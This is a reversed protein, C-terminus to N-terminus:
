NKLILLPMNVNFNLAATHSGEFLLELFNHHHAIMVLMDAPHRDLFNLIGQQVNNNKAMEYFYTMKSLAVGLQLKASVEEANIENGDKEIHLVTLAANFKNVLQQLIEITSMQVMGKFDVALTIRGPPQYKIKDPVILIPTTTKRITKLITNGFIINRSKAERGMVILDAQIEAAMEAILDGTFGVVAEGSVDIEYNTEIDTVEKYIRNEMETHLPPLILPAQLYSDPITIPEIHANLLKIEANFASALSAAYATANRASDSYDTPVLIRKM